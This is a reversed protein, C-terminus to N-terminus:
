DAVAGAEVSQRRQEPHQVGACGTHGHDIDVVAETGSINGRDDVQKRNSVRQLRRIFVVPEAMALRFRQCTERLGGKDGSRGKEEAEM